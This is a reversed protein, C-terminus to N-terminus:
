PGERVLYRYYALQWSFSDDNNKDNLKTLDNNLDSLIKEEDKLKQDAADKLISLAYEKVMAKATISQPEMDISNVYGNGTDFWVSVYSGNKGNKSIMVYVDVPNSSLGPIQVNDSFLLNAKKDSKVKGKFQDIYKKWGDEAVDKEIEDFEISFANYSGEKMTKTGQLVEIEQSHVHIALIAFTFILIVSKM